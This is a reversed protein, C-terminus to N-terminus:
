ILNTTLTLIGRYLVSRPPGFFDPEPILADFLSIDMYTVPIPEM